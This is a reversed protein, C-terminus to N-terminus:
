ASSDGSGRGCAGRLGSRPGAAAIRGAGGSDEFDGTRSPESSCCRLRRRVMWGVLRKLLAVGWSVVVLWFLFRIVRAIFNM